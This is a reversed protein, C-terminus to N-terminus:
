TMNVSAYYVFILVGSSPFSVNSNTLVSVKPEDPISVDDKHPFFMLLIGWGVGFSLGIAVEIPGHVLHQM